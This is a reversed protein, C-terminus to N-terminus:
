YFLKLNGNSEYQNTWTNETHAGLQGIENFEQTKRKQPTNKSLSLYFYEEFIGLGSFPNQVNDFNSFEIQSMTYADVTNHREISTAKQLNGSNDYTFKEVYSLIYDSPDTPDYPMNPLETVIEVLKGTGDYNYTLHKEWIPGYNPQFIVSKVLRGQNDFELSREKVPINFNPDSSYEGMSASNGSYTIKTYISNFFYSPFTGGSFSLFGGIRKTIRGQSDYEFYYNPDSGMYSQALLPFSSSIKNPKIAAVINPTQVLEEDNNSCSYIFSLLIILFFIKLRM